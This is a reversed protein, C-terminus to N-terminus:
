SVPNSHISRGDKNWDFKGSEVIVGGMSTGHGNLFKTTSHIVIDAGWEIPNLLYPTAMTNDVIVPIGAEKGIAVVKELDIVMGGPNALVEM